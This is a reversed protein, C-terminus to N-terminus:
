PLGNLLQRAEQLRSDEPPPSAELYDICELLAGSAEQNRDVGILTRALLLRCSTILEGDPQEQKLAWNLVWEAPEIAAAHREHELRLEAMQVAVGAALHQRELNKLLGNWAIQLHEEAEVGQGCKRLVRGHYTRIDLASTGDVGQLRVINV